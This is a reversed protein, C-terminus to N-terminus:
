KVAYWWNGGHVRDVTEQSEFAFAVLPVAEPPYGASLLVARCEAILAASARLRNREADTPTSIWIALHRPNIEVAGFSFVGAGPCHRRAIDRLSAEVARIIEPLSM